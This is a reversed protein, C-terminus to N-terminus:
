LCVERKQQGAVSYKYRVFNTSYTLPGGTSTFPLRYNLSPSIHRTLKLLELVEM